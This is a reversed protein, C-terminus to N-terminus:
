NLFYKANEATLYLVPMDVQLPFVHVLGSAARPYVGTHKETGGDAIVEGACESALHFPVM